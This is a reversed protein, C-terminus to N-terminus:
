RGTPEAAHASSFLFGTSPNEAPRLSSPLTKTHSTMIMPGGSVAYHAAGWRGMLLAQGAARLRERTRPLAVGSPLCECKTQTRAWSKARTSSRNWWMMPLMKSEHHGLIEGHVHRTFLLKQLSESWNKKRVFRITRGVRMSGLSRCRSTKQTPSCCNQLSM